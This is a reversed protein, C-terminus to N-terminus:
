GRSPLINGKMDVYVIGSEIEQALRVEGFAGRGILSHLNYNKLGDKQRQLRKCLTQEKNKNFGSNEKRTKKNAWKERTDGEADLIGQYRDTYKPM